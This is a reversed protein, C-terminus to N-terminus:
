LQSSCAFLFLDIDFWIATCMCATSVMKIYSVHLYSLSVLMIQLFWYVLELLTCPYFSPLVLFLFLGGICSYFPLTYVWVIFLALRISFYNFYLSYFNITSLCIFIESAMTISFFVLICTQEELFVCKVLYSAMLWCTCAFIPHVWIWMILPLWRAVSKFDQCM